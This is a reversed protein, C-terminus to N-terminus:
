KAGYITHSLDIPYSIIINNDKVRILFLLMKFKEGGVQVLPSPTFWDVAVDVTLANSPFVAVNNIPTHRTNSVCSKPKNINSAYKNIYSV